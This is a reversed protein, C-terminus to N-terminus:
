REATQESDPAKRLPDLEKRRYSILSYLSGCIGTGIFMVAMGSGAGRGVLSGLFGALPRGSQMWPEFVYDALFGGLLIGIPISGFQLANRVAFVRGQMPRPVNEYLIVNQGAIIFPIPFSAMLGALSWVVVSQGFGMLLDGFFFSFAAGLYIMTIRDRTFRGTSVMLGGLIGGIGLMANVIGMVMSNQGSRALLMPSLINEYTLRSFFNILALTLVTIWLGRNDRLFRFGTRCGVLASEKKEGDYPAEPIPILLLLITFAFLFSAFDVSLIIPLGGLAYLAAALVPTLVMILNDSFSSMGSIQALKERPVMMGRAVQSAPVQVANMLGLGSNVLYIHWVQLADQRSLVLVLLSTISAFADATLMIPKKRHQDVFSGALLGALLYPVYMFFTMLSVVMASRTQQYAWLVLGFGTMASGLQSVSQSLWFLVYRKFQQTM